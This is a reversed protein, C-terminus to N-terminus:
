YYLTEYRGDSSGFGACGDVLSSVSFCVRGYLWAFDLSMQAFILAEQEM